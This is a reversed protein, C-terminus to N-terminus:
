CTYLEAEWLLAIIHIDLSIITTLSKEDIYVFVFALLQLWMVKLFLLQLWKTRKKKPRKPAVGMTCPPEWARLRILATATLRCWLWLLATDSGCKCVVGCGLDKVWQALKPIM